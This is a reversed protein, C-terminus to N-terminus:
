TFLVTVRSRIRRRAPGQKQASIDREEVIRTVRHNRDRLIRGKGRDRPPEYLATLFTLDAEQAGARHVEWIRRFISSPVIRDGMSIIIAPNKELLAPVSFAEFTAFATGGAPDDSRLYFRRFADISHRALPIGHLLQVCKPERGFRTGKGAALMVLVPVDPRIGNYFALSDPNLIKEYDLTAATRLPRVTPSGPTKEQEM